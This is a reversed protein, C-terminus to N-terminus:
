MTVVNELIDIAAFGKVLFLDLMECRRIAFQALHCVFFKTLERDEVRDDALRQTYVRRNV